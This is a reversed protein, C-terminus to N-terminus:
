KKTCENHFISAELYLNKFDPGLYNFFCNQDDRTEMVFAKTADQNVAVVYYVMDYPEEYAEGDSKDFGIHYEYHEEFHLTNAWRILHEKREELEKQREVSLNAQALDDALSKYIAARLFSQRPSMEVVRIKGDSYLNNVSAIALSIRKTTPSLGSPMDHGSAVYSIKEVPNKWQALERKEEPLDDICSPGMIENYDIVHYCEGHPAFITVSYKGGNGIVTTILAIYEGHTIEDPNFQCHGFMEMLHINCKNTRVKVLDGEKYIMNNENM